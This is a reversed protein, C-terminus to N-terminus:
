LNASFPELVKRLMELPLQNFICQNYHYFKLWVKKGIQGYEIKMNGGNFPKGELEMMAKEVVKAELHVFGVDKNTMIHKDVVKTRQFNDFIKDLDM